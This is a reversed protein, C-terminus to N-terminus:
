FLRQLDVKPIVICKLTESMVMVCQQKYRQGSIEEFDGFSSGPLLRTYGSESGDYLKREIAAARLRRQGRKLLNKM